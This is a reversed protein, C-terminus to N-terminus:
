RKLSNIRTPWLFKRFYAFRLSQPQYTLVYKMLVIYILTCYIYILTCFMDEKLVLQDIILYVYMDLLKHYCSCTRNTMPKDQDLLSTRKDPTRIWPLLQPDQYSKNREGMDYEM